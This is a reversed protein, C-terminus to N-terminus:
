DAGRRRDGDGRRQRARSSGGHAVALSRGRRRPRPRATAQEIPPIAFALRRARDGDPAEDDSVPQGFEPCAENRCEWEHKPGELAKGASEGCTPCLPPEMSGISRPWALSMEM